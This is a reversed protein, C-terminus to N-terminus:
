NYLNVFVCICHTPKDPSLYSVFLMDFSHLFNNIECICLYVFVIHQNIPPCIHRVCCTLHTYCTMLYVPFNSKRYISITRWCYRQYFPFVFTVALFMCLIWPMSFLEVLGKFSISVFSKCFFAKFLIRLFVILPCYKPSVWNHQLFLCFLPPPRYIINGWWWQQLAVSKEIGCKKISVLTSSSVM